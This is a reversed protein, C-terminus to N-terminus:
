DILRVAAITLASGRFGDSGAALLKGQQLRTHVSGGGNHAENGGGEELLGGGARWRCGVGGEGASCLTFGSARM